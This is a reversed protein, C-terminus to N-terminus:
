IRGKFRDADHAQLALLLGTSYDHLGKAYKISQDLYKCSNVALRVAYDTHRDSVLRFERLCEQENPGHIMYSQALCDYEEPLWKEHNKKSKAVKIAGEILKKGKRFLIRDERDLNLLGVHSVHYQMENYFEVAQLDSQSMSQNM